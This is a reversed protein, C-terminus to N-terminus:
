SAERENNLNSNKVTKDSNKHCKVKPQCFISKKKVALVMTFKLETIDGVFIICYNLIPHYILFFDIM